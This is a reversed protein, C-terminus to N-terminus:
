CLAWCCIDGAQWIYTTFQVYMEGLSEAVPNVAKGFVGPCFVQMSLGVSDARIEESNNEQESTCGVFVQM